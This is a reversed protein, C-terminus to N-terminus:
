PNRGGRTSQASFMCAGRGGRVPTVGVSATVVRIGDGHSSAIHWRLVASRSLRTALREGPDLTLVRERGGGTEVGVQASKVEVRFAVRPRELCSVEFRGVSGLRM